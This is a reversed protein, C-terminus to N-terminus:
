PAMKLARTASSIPSSLRLSFCSLRQPLPTPEPRTSPSAEPSSFLGFDRRGISPSANGSVSASAAFATSARPREAARGRTEGDSPVTATTLPAGLRSSARWSPRAPIKRLPCLPSRLHSHTLSAFQLRCICQSVLELAGGIPGSQEGGCSVELFALLEPCVRNRPHLMIDNLYNEIIERQRQLSDKDVRYFLPSLFIPIYRKLRRNADRVESSVKFDVNQVIVTDDDDDDYDGLNSKSSDIVLDADLSMRKTQKLASQKHNKKKRIKRSMTTETESKRVANLSEQASKEAKELATASNRAGVSEARAIRGKTDKTRPSNTMVPNMVQDSVPPLELDDDGNYSTRKM